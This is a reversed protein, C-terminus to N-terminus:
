FMETAGAAPIARRRIRQSVFRKGKACVKPWDIGSQGYSAEIGPLTTMSQEFTSRIFLPTFVDNEMQLFFVYV